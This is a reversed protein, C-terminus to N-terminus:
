GKRPDGLGTGEPPTTWVGPTQSEISILRLVACVARGPEDGAAAERHRQPPSWSCTRSTTTSGACSAASCGPASARQRDPRRLRRRQVGERDRRPVRRLPGDRRRHRLAQRVDAGRDPRGALRDALRRRAGPDAARDRQGAGERVGSKGSGPPGLLLVGRPGPRRAAARGCPAPASRSSPRWGAWTPSRRAAGTRADAPGVEEAGPGQAGLARRRRAPRAPGALPQLRERGRGPDARGGRRARRGPRRGRAARRARHRRRPRDGRAPRPRAPRARHRRVAEGARRPDPRGALPRRRLHPGAQRRRHRTDLAQVVEITNLFRHFNRLVLLPPATPRPWPASRGSRPWRTPPAARRRRRRRGARRPEPRPRHGLHGPGLGARRCLRAIEAVADDHEFSQVWLGTFAARVYESLREALTM